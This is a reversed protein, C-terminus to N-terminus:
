RQSAAASAVPEDILPAGTFLQCAPTHETLADAALLVAGATWTPREAPWHIGLELQYGTWYGGGPARLRHLWSYIEQALASEGIALLAMALECSEAVAVWPEDVVCRCGAQDVVFDRWRSFLRERAAHVGLVGTLAPYFWDMAFRRKSPWGRDFREPRRRLAESLARRAAEWHSRRCGVADALALACEMSKYISCCGSLLADDLARGDRDMSWAVDGHATQMGVVFDVARDVVPWYERLFADDQSITYHHWIGTAPYACFNSEADFREVRGGRYASHWGGDARQREALWRYARVAAAWEGGVSLGMAAETHNWPDAHHGDFWPIAGDDRQADRIFRVTSALWERPYIGRRLYIGQM